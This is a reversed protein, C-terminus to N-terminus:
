HAEGLGSAIFDNLWEWLNGVCDVCGINSVANRVFGTTARETAASWANQNGSGTGPPSGAAARIFENYFLPRKGNIALRESAAYWNLNEVGSVPLANYKSHLGGNGDDSALYIDVWVGGTLYLMGEPACKPRHTLTWISRPVIGNTVNAPAITNIRNVGYHFGGITRFGSPPTLNLSLVIVGNNGINIRYDGGIIFSSGTDLHEAGLTVDATFTFIKGDPLVITTGKRIAVNEWGVPDIILNEVLTIGPPGPPGPGGGGGGLLDVLNYLLGDEGIIRGTSPTYTEIDPIKTTIAM